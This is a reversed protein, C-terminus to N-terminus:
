KTKYAPEPVGFRIPLSYKVRLPKGDQSGPLWCPMATIVRVAEEDCGYGLERFVTIARLSGDREVIFSVFVRGKIGAKRAEVPYHLNTHIFASLSDMGGPFQPQREVVTYVTTDSKAATQALSGTSFLFMGASVGLLRILAPLYLPFYLPMNM